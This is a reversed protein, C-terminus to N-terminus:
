RFYLLKNKLDPLIINKRNYYLKLLCYRVSLIYFNLCHNVQPRRFMEYKIPSQRLVLYYKPNNQSTIINHHKGSRSTGKNETFGSRTFDEIIRTDLTEFDELIREQTSFEFIIVITFVCIM